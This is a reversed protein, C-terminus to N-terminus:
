LDRAISTKLNNILWTVIQRGNCKKQFYLTAIVLFLWIWDYLHCEKPFCVRSIAVQFFITYNHLFACNTYNWKFIIVCMGGCNYWYKTEFNYKGNHLINIEMFFLNIQNFCRCYLLKLYSEFKIQNLFYHDKYSLFWYNVFYSSHLGLLYLM